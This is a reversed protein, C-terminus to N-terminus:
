AAPIQMPGDAEKRLECLVAEIEEVDIHLGQKELWEWAAAIKKENGQDRFHEEAYRVATVVLDRIFINQENSIKINIWKKLLPVIEVLALCVAAALLGTLFLAIETMAM